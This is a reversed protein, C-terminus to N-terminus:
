NGLLVVACAAPFAFYLLWICKCGQMYIIWPVSQVQPLSLNNRTIKISLLHNILSLSVLILIFSHMWLLQQSILQENSSKEHISDTWTGKSKSFFVLNVIIARIFPLCVLEDRVFIADFWSKRIKKKQTIQLKKGANNGPSTFFCYCLWLQFYGSM